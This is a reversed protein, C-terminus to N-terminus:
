TGWIHESFPYFLIKPNEKECTCGYCFDFIELYPNGFSKKLLPCFGYPPPRVAAGVGCWGM